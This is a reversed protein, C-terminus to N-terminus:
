AGTRTALRGAVLAEMDVEDLSTVVIDADAAALLDADDARAIGIAAMGGARAAEVGAVADELVIAEPPDVGLEHAATLFMEPHPKGHAFDRGSVDADFLELLTLGPRLQPSSIGQEDAFTDLRIRHLFLDANKSSSAAAVVIGASKVAIIFRLADPYATFDGADILRVLMAQKRDAYEDVRREADPVGFHDLADRAGAMRPKGSLREQYVLSTFAEPSWSTDGRIDRWDSEMLERLSERWAMEHPSDVLVGDVDFIAGRFQPM